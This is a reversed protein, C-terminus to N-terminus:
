TNDFCCLVNWFTETKLELNTRVILNQFSLTATDGHDRTCINKTYSVRCARFLIYSVM